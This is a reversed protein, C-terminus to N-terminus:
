KIELKVENVLSARQFSFLTQAEEPEGLCNILKSRRMSNSAFRHRFSAISLVILLCCQFFILYPHHNWTPPRVIHIIDIILLSTIHVTYYLIM